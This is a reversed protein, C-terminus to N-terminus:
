FGTFALAGMVLFLGLIGAVRPIGEKEFFDVLPKLIMTLAFSLVLLIFVQGFISLIFIPAAISFTVIFVKWYRSSFFDDM